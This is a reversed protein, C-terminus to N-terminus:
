EPAGLFARAMAKTRRRSPSGSATPRSPEPVDPIHRRNGHSAQLPAKPLLYETM